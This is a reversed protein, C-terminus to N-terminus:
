NNMEQTEATRAEADEGCDQRVHDLAAAVRRM